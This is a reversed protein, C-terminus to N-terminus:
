SKGAVAVPTAVAAAALVQLNVVEDQFRVFRSRVFWGIEGREASLTAPALM